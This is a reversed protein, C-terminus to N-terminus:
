FVEFLFTVLSYSALIVGVGLGGWLLTKLAKGEQESNGRATMWLLGGYIFMGLAISGMIGMAAKIIRGILQPVSVNLKNLSSANPLVFPVNLDPQSVVEEPDKKPTILDEFVYCDKLQAAYHGDYGLSRGSGLNLNADIVEIVDEGHNISSCNDTTVSIHRYDSNAVEAFPYCPPEFSKIYREFPPNEVLDQWIQNDDFRLHVYDPGKDTYGCTVPNNDVYKVSGDAEPTGEFYYNCYCFYKRDPKLVHKCINNECKGEICEIDSSCEEGLRKKDVCIGFDQGEEKSCREDGRSCEGDAFCGCTGDDRCNGSICDSDVSCAGGGKIGANCKLYNCSNYCEYSYTCFEGDDKETECGDQAQDSCGEKLCISDVCNNSLCMYGANFVTGNIVTSFCDGGIEKKEECKAINVDCYSPKISNSCHENNSCVCFGSSCNGIDGCEFEEPFNGGDLACMDGLQTPPTICVSLICAQGDPCISENGDRECAEQENGARAAFVDGVVFFSVIFFLSFILYKLSTLRM